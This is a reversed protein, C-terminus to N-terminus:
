PCARVPCLLTRRFATSNRYLDAEYHNCARGEENRAIKFAVPRVFIVPRRYVGKMALWRVVIKM